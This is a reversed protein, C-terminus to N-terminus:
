GDDSGPPGRRRPKARTLGGVFNALAHVVAHAGTAPQRPVVGFVILLKAVVSAAILAALLVVLATGLGLGLGIPDGAVAPEQAAAPVAASTALAALGTRMPTRANDDPV